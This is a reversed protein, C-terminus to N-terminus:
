RLHYCYSNSSLLFSFLQLFILFLRVNLFPLGYFMVSVNSRKVASCIIKAYPCWRERFLMKM